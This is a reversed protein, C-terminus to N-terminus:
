SVGGYPAPRSIFCVCSRTGVLVHRLGWFRIFEPRKPEPLKILRRLVYFEGLLANPNDDRRRNELSLRTRDQHAGLRFTSCAIYNFGTAPM